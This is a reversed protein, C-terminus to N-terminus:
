FACRYVRSNDPGAPAPILVRESLFVRHRVKKLEAYKM